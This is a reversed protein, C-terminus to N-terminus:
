AMVLRAARRSGADSRNRGRTIGATPSAPHRPSANQTSGRIQPTPNTMRATPRAPRATNRLTPRRSEGSQARLRRMIRRAPRVDEHVVGRREIFRVGGTGGSSRRGIGTPSIRRRMTPRSTLFESLIGEPDPSTRAAEYPLVFESLGESWVAADPGVPQASFGEPTPYADSYFIPDPHSPGGPWFGASSLEHSYAERTSWDPLHPVGGPHEPTPRGSFRTVALDFSGWFFHVPSCKGRFGGRFGIFVRASSVLARCFRNAADADYSAHFHDESSPIPEPVENPVGHFAVTVGMEELRAMLEGHFDAVSRPHLDLTGVRGDAAAIRFEHDFVDFDIQFASRDHPMLSTTLGRPTVYLSVHWQHNIWPTCALRIRGVIQSWLHLTEYTDKWDEYVIEPWDASHAKAVSDDRTM